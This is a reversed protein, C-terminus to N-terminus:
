TRSPELAGLRRRHRLATGLGFFGLLMMAWTSPEPVATVQLTWTKGASRPGSTGDMVLVSGRFWHEEDSYDGNGADWHTAYDKPVEFYGALARVNQFTKVYPIWWDDSGGEYKQGGTVGDLHYHENLVIGLTVEAVPEDTYFVYRYKGPGVGAEIQPSWPDFWGTGFYEGEPGLTDSQIFGTTTHITTLAAAASPAVLLGLALLAALLSRMQVRVM